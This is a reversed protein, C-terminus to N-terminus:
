VPMPECQYFEDGDQLPTPTHPLLPTGRVTTGNVSNLDEIIFQTEQRVLRAHERGVHRDPLWISNLKSRGLSEDDDLHYHQGVSCGTLVEIWAM